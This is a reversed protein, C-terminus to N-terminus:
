SPGHIRQMLYFMKERTADRVELINFDKFFQERVEEPDVSGLGGLFKINSSDPRFTWLIYLSQPHTVNKLSPTYLERDKKKISHLCGYDIVLDFPERIVSRLAKLDLFNVAHFRCNVNRKTTKTRAKKIAVSSVDIGVANFGKSALYIIYSGTGCGVDLVRCPQISGGEVLEFLEKPPEDTDWPSQLRGLSLWPVIRYVLNWWNVM